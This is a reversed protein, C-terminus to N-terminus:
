SGFDHTNQFIEARGRGLCFQFGLTPDVGGLNSAVPFAGLFHLFDVFRQFVSVERLVVFLYSASRRISNRTQAHATRNTQAPVVYLFCETGTSHFLM